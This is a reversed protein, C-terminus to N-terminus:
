HKKWKKKTKSNLLNASKREAARRAINDDEKQRCKSCYKTCISKWPLDIGCVKCNVM